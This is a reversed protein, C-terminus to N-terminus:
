NFAFPATTAQPALVPAVRGSMPDVVLSNLKFTVCFKIVEAAMFPMNDNKPVVDPTM